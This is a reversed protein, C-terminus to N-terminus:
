LTKIKEISLGTVRSIFSYDKTEKLMRKANEENAQSIGQEIGKELGEKHGQELAEKRACEIGELLEKKEAEAFAKRDYLEMYRPDQAMKKIMNYLAKRKISDSALKEMEDYSKAHLMALTKEVDKRDKAYCIEGFYPLFIDYVRIFDYVEGTIPSVYRASVNKLEEYENVISEENLSRNNETFIKIINEELTVFKVKRVLKM